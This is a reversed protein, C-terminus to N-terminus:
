VECTINSTVMFGKLHPWSWVFKESPLPVSGKKRLWLRLSEHNYGCLDPKSLISVGGGGLNSLGEFFESYPPEIPNKLSVLAGQYM